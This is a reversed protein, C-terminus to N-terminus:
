PNLLDKNYYNLIGNIMTVYTQARTHGPNDRLVANFCNLAQRFDAMGNYVVGLEFLLSEREEQRDEQELSQRLMLVAEEKRNEKVLRRVDEILDGKVM